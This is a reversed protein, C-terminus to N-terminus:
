EIAAIERPLNGTVVDRLAQRVHERRKQADPVHEKFQPMENGLEIFDQGHPNGSARHSRALAAKSTYWKGDAMSQVPEDFDKVVGPCPLASRGPKPEPAKRYVMRGNGLDFWRYTM